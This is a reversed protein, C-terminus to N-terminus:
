WENAIIKAITQLQINSTGEYISGVKCDRYFKEVIIDETFGVGGYWEICKSAVREAVQSSYLKCMSAEKVFPLGNEKMRAANYTMVEVAHIETALQAVQHQMGQFDGISTGFQKRERLYPMTANFAGKAIGLQQGAIGIRGENLIEIAYKYGMGVEGLVCSADVKVDEFSLACTSSAKLGLKREKKGVTIGETEADIVFATIGKYGKEPAANAFVLFVGAEKSNSIWLKSGNLTYYSGDPSPIATTKMAFADTGSGAESLCFSSATDTALRPLWKEQLEESGWFRLANNTLTNQIDVLIAFSPDVAAIEEVAIVASTFNMESGGYKEPIEMGMLGNDFLSKLIDPRMAGERDMERVHPALEQQAWTKVMDRVATEEESYMTVAPRLEMFPSDEALASFGKLSASAPRSLRSAFRSLM